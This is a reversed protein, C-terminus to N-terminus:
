QTAVVPSWSEDPDYREMAAALQGTAEGLDKQLLKGQHSIVFTMIGSNGYDSPWAVLAFGAIMNGNIVYDYDRGPPNPGQATLIKYNYGHLGEGAQRYKLYEEESAALPGLPSPDRGTPDDWYLGDRQGQTSILKQAYELVEDGDHDQTAYLMQADAYAEAMSIATLENAGIRRDIIEELGAETDFIWGKHSKVPPIPMPWDRPVM